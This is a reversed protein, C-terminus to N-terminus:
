PVLKTPVQKGPVVGTWASVMVCVTVLTTEWMAAQPGRRNQTTLAWRSGAWTFAMPSANFSMATAARASRFLAM